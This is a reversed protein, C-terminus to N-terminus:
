TWKKSALIGPRFRETKIMISDFVSLRQRENHRVVPCSPQWSIGGGAVGGSAQAFVVGWLPAGGRQLTTHAGTVTNTRMDEGIPGARTVWLGASLIM